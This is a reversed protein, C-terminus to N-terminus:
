SVVSSNLATGGAICYWQTGDCRLTAYEYAETFTVITGGNLGGAVTVVCDTSDTSIISIEQGDSGVALTMATAGASGDLLALGCNLSIAGGATYTKTTGRLQVNPMSGKGAM